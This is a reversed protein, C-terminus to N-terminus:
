HDLWTKLEAVREKSVYVDGEPLPKLFVQVRGTLMSKMRQIASIHSIIKRNLRFFQVPNLLGDLQELRYDIIYRKTDTGVMYVTKDDAYFYAIENTSRYHLHDGFRVLFRQKYPQSLNRLAIEFSNLDATPLSYNWQKFKALARSLAHSDIPKLLYDLSNLQFAELAHRDYATTFILPVQVDAKRFFEFSSGDALHIDVFILDPPLHTQWWELAAEVSEITEPTQWNPQAQRLLGQLREASLREDELILVKM